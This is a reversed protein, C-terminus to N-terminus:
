VEDDWVDGLVDVFVESVFGEFNENGFGVFDESVFEVSVGPFGGLEGGGVLVDGEVGTGGANGGEFGIAVEESEDSSAIGGLVYELDGGLRISAHASQELLLEREINWPLVM